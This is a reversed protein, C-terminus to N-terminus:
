KAHKKNFMVYAVACAVLVGGAAYLLTTGMGGTSPLTSGKKNVVNTTLSGASKDATFTATGSKVNGSLQTLAPNDSTEDHEASITFEIPAITNYGAPTTTETLKYDGDDLGKYEATYSVVNGNSDKVEKAEIGSAITAWSETGKNDKVKKLLDFKAGALPKNTENVKNVVVKYTFVINKDEPTKGTDGEGGKNPNNSYTLDVKNPNGASGIVAKENLEANYTLVFKSNETVGNTLNNAKLDACSWTIKHGGNYEDESTVDAIDEKFASTVDTGTNDNSDTYLMVKYNKKETTSATYTLGKSMTDTFVYNYTKYNAINSPMTGTIQYPVSDGIDYDASDQWDSTTGTSDNTDKVKKTVTPVGSKVNVTAPGVVQVIFRTSADHGSVAANDKVFYYGADSLSITTKVQDSAVTTTAENLYSGVDQAFAKAGESEDEKYNDSLIKTVDSANEADKFVNVTKNNEDKKNFAADRKLAALLDSGNVGKGWVINSLTKGSLDGGFVKYVAYSHGTVTGNITLTYPNQSEGEAHVNVGAFTALSLVMTLTVLYSFLKKFLKM